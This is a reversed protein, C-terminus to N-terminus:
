SPKQRLRQCVSSQLSIAVSSNRHFAHPVPALHKQLPCVKDNYDYFPRLTLRKLRFRDYTAAPLPLDTPQINQLMDKVDSGSARAPTQQHSGSIRVPQGSRAAQSGFFRECFNSTNYLPQPNSQRKPAKFSEQHMVSPDLPQHDTIRPGDTEITKGTGRSFVFGGGCLM